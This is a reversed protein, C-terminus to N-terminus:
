VAIDRREFALLAVAFFLGTLILLVAVDGWKIGGTLAAMSDYYHYFALPRYPKLVDVTKGLSDLFYSGIVVVLAITTAARRSRLLVSLMLALAGSALTVPAINLSAATVPVASGAEGILLAGSVFFLAILVMIALTAVFFAGFKEAVLRWRPIPQSLLLDLTGREEEGAILGTGAAVAFIALIPPGYSYFEVNLWGPFTALQTVDGFFATFAAPYNKLLNLLDGVQDQFAPYLFIIMWGLLGAGIGWGLIQGRLDRLTKAFVNRLSM